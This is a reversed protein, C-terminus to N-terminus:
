RRRERELGDLERRARRSAAVSAWILAGLILASAAYAAVVYPAYPDVLLSM